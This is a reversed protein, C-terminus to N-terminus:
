ATAGDGGVRLVRYRLPWNALASYGLARMAGPSLNIRPTRLPDRGPRAVEDAHSDVVLVRVTAQTRPNEIVLESGGPLERSFLSQRVTAFLGDPDYAIGSATLESAEAPAVGMTPSSGDGPVAAPQAAAAPGLAVDDHRIELQQVRERLEALEEPLSPSSAAVLAPPTTAAPTAIRELGRV